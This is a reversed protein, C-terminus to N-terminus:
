SDEPTYGAEFIATKLAPVGIEASDYDITVTKADLDVRVGKVGRKGELASLIRARCHACSMDKVSFRVQGAGAM